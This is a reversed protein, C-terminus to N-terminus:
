GRQRIALAVTLAAALSTGLLALAFHSLVPAARLRPGSIRYIAGRLLDVLYLDGNPAVKLDTVAAFGDALVIPNAEAPTDAVLDALAGGLAFGTRSANLPFSYIAGNNSDAVIAASDYPAGLTSGWPFVIATPAVTTQWSFEPDSYTLGAGPINFLAAVGDPDLSDPGMIERWGSNMGPQVRNVEDMTVPGNETDWLQGTLPDLALGFSNRIGYAWYRAVQTRCTQGGPCNANSACTQTTTTSCYPTFPNGPAPAGNQLVRLIVGTDDPPDGFSFNQLQGNRNLEGIVAHLAAGDGTGPFEGPPGLV